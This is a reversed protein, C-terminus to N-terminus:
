EFKFRLAGIVFFLVAMGLLIGSQTLVGEIGMGRAIVNQIGEVAWYHPTILKLGEIQVQPTMCGSVVGLVLAIVMAGISAQSGNRVVAAILIGMGGVTLGICLIILGLALPENGLEMGFIMNCVALVFALQVISVLVFPLAKGLLIAVRSVPSTILRRLTGTERESIVVEALHSILVFVFMLALGPALSSMISIEAGTDKKTLPETQVKILPNDIAENVAKALVAKIGANIFLQFDNQDVGEVKKGKFLGQMARDIEAYVISKIMASQVLGTVLGGEKARAPDVIVLISGGDSTKVSESFNEPIVVAAMRDGKAVRADAEAQTALMEFDLNESKELLAIIEAGREGKDANVGYVTVVPLGTKGFASGLIGVFALPVLFIVLWNGPVQMWLRLEKYAIAIIQRLM